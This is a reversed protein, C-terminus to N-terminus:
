IITQDKIVPLIRGDPEGLYVGPPLMLNGMVTMCTQALAELYGHASIEPNKGLHKLYNTLTLHFKVLSEDYSIKPPVEKAGAMVLDGIIALVEFTKYVELMLESIVEEDTPDAKDLYFAVLSRCEAFWSDTHVYHGKALLYFHARRYQEKDDAM